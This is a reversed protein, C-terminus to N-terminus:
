IHQYIIPPSAFRVSGSQTTIVNIGLPSHQMNSQLHIMAGQGGAMTMNNLQATLFSATCFGPRDEIEV